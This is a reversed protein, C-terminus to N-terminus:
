EWEKAKAPDVERLRELNERFGVTSEDITNQLKAWEEPALSWELPTLKEIIDTAAKWNGEAIYANAKEKKASGEAQIRVATLTQDLRNRAEKQARRGQRTLTPMSEIMEQISVLADNTQKHDSSFITNGDKDEKAKVSIASFSSDSILKTMHNHANGLTEQSEKEADQIATWASVVKALTVENSPANRVQNPTLNATDAIELLLDGGDEGEIALAIENFVSFQENRETENVERLANMKQQLPGKTAEEKLLERKEDPTMGTVDLGSVRVWRDLEEPQLKEILEVMEIDQAEATLLTQVTAMGAQILSDPPPGDGDWDVITDRLFELIQRDKPELNEELQRTIVKTLYETQVALGAEERGKKRLDQSRDFAQNFEAYTDFTGEAVSKLINKSLYDPNTSWIEAVDRKIMSLEEAKDSKSKALRAGAGPDGGAGGLFAQLYDSPKAEWPGEEGSAIQKYYDEKSKPDEDVPGKRPKAVSAEEADKLLPDPLRKKAM